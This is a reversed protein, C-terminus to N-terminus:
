RAFITSVPIEFGPVASSRIVNPLGFPESEVYANGQLRLVTVQQPEPDVVWYEAIGAAAYDARKDILERRRNAAGESVIEIVLEASDLFKDSDSEQPAPSRTFFVDPERYKLPAVQLPMPSCLVTGLEHVQVYVRLPVAINLQINQHRISPMPLVEIRGNDFEVLHNTPLDLYDYKSWNGQNPFLRAIDWTPLCDPAASPHQTAFEPLTATSM